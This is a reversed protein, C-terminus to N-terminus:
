TAKNKTGQEKNRTEQITTRGESKLKNKKPKTENDQNIQNPKEQDQNDNEQREMTVNMIMTMAHITMMLNM